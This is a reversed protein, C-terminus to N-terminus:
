AANAAAIYYLTTINERQSQGQSNNYTISFRQHRRSGLNLTTTGTGYIVPQYRGGSRAEEEVVLALGFWNQSSPNVVQYNSNRVNNNPTYEEGVAVRFRNVARKPVRIHPGQLTLQITVDLRLGASEIRLTFNPVRVTPQNGDYPMERITNNGYLTQYDARTTDTPLDSRIVANTGGEAAVKLYAPAGILSVAYNGDGGSLYMRDVEHNANPEQTVTTTLTTIPAGNSSARARIPANPTRQSVPDSDAGNGVASEARAIIDYETNPMLDTFTHQNDVSDEYTYSEVVGTRKIGFRYGTIASGNAPPPTATASITTATASTAISAVKSPAQAAPTASVTASWPGRGGSSVASIRFDHSTGNTLGGIDVQRLDGSVTVQRDTSWEQSGSKWQVDYCVIASGGNNSPALWTARVTQSILPAVAFNRPVTPPVAVVAESVVNSEPSDGEDNIAFVRFYYMTGVSLNQFTHTLVNGAVTVQVLDNTFTNNTAREVRYNNISLGGLDAPAQWTLRVNRRLLESALNRPASSETRHGRILTWDSDRWAGAGASNRYYLLRGRQVIAYRQYPITDHHEPIGLHIFEEMVTTIECELENILPRRPTNGGLDSFAQPWGTARALAPDLESSGPLLRDGDRGWSKIRKAQDDLPM